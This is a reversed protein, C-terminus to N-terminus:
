FVKLYTGDNIQHFMCGQNFPWYFFFMHLRFQTLSKWLEPLICIKIRVLHFKVKVLWGKGKSIQHKDMIWPKTKISQLNNTTAEVISTPLNLPWLTTWINFMASTSNKKIRWGQPDTRMWLWVRQLKPPSPFMRPEKM